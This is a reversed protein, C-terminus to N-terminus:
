GPDKHHQTEFPAGTMRVADAQYAECGRKVPVTERSSKSVRPGPGAGFGYPSIGTRSVRMWSNEEQWVRADLAPITLPLV